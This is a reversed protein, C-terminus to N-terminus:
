GYGRGETMFRETLDDIDVRVSRRAGTAPEEAEFDTMLRMGEARMIEFMIARM